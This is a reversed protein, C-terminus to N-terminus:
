GLSERESTTSYIGCVTLTPVDVDIRCEDEPLSAAGSGSLVRSRLGGSCGVCCGRTVNSTAFTVRLLAAPLGPSVPGQLVGRELSPVVCRSELSRRHYSIASFLFDAKGGYRRPIFRKAGDARGDGGQELSKPRPRTRHCSAASAPQSRSMLTMKEAISLAGFALTQQLM